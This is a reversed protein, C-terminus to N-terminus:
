NINKIFLVEISSYPMTVRHMNFCQYNHTKMKNILNALRNLCLRYEEEQKKSFNDTDFLTLDFEVAFNFDFEVAIQTPFIQDKLIDEMLDIIDADIDIKLIDIKSHNNKTILTKLKHCQYEKKYQGETEFNYTISANAFKDNPHFFNIKKDEKWLGLPFLEINKPGQYNDIFKKATPDYCYIKSDKFKQAISEEFKIQGGIGFSYVIPKDNIKSTDLYYNFYREITPKNFNLLHKKIFRKNLVRKKKFLYSFPFEGVKAPSM